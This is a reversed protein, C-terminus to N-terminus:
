LLLREWERAVEDCELPRVFEQAASAMTTLLSEDTLLRITAEVFRQQVSAEEIAGSILFGTRGDVVRESLAFSDSTIVPTGAAAAEAVALCFMEDDRCPYLMVSAESQVQRLRARNLVGLYRVGQSRQDGYPVGAQNNLFAADARNLGWLEYGNTVHLEADPVAERIRPWITLAVDLGKGPISTYLCVPPRRSKTGASDYLATEIPHPIISVSHEVEARELLSQAARSAVIIPGDCLETRAFAATGEPRNDLMWFANTIGPLPAISEEYKVAVRVDPAIAKPLEHLPRWDVGDYRGCRYPCNFVTVDHGRRALTRSLVVLVGESGGLGPADYDPPYFALRKGYVFHWSAM